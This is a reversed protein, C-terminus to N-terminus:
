KGRRRGRRMLARQMRKLLKGGRRTTRLAAAIDLATDEVEEQIVDALAEIDRLRDDLSAAVRETRKRIVSSTEALGDVETKVTSLVGSADGVLSRLSEIAPKGDRELTKTLNSLDTLLVRLNRLLLLLAVCAAGLFVAIFATSLATVTEAWGM